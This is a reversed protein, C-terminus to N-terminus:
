KEDPHADTQDSDNENIDDVSSNSRDTSAAEADAGTTGSDVAPDCEGTKNKIEDGVTPGYSYLYGDHRVYYVTEDPDEIVGNDTDIAFEVLESLSDAEARPLEFAEPPLKITSIWEAFTERDDKDALRAREAESLDDRNSLSVVGGLLGLSVILLLPGGLGQIPGDRSDVTVTETSEYTETTPETDEVRYTTESVTMPLDYTTTEDVAEGNVTGRATVTARILVETEGPSRGLDEHIQDIRANVTTMDQSFSVNVPEGSAVSDVTAENLSDSTQWHVTPEDGSQDQEIDRIILTVSVSHDLEGSDQAEYATQFTGDLEPSLRTFYIPRDELTTGVSFLDNETQVTSTHDFEGTQEWSVTSQQETTTASAIHTTYTIWGGLVAVCLVIVIIVRFHTDFVARSRLRWEDM